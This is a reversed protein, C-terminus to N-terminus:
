SFQAYKKIFFNPWKQDIKWSNQTYLWSLIDSFNSIQKKMLQVDNQVLLGIQGSKLIPPLLPIRTKLSTWTIIVWNKNCNYWFEQNLYIKNSINVPSVKLIVQRNKIWTRKQLSLFKWISLIYKFPILHILLFVYLIMHFINLLFWGLQPHNRLERVQKIFILLM